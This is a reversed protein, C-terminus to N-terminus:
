STFFLFSHISLLHFFFFSVSLVFFYKACGSQKTCRQPKLCYASHLGGSARWLLCVAEFHALPCEKAMHGFHETLVLGDMGWGAREGAAAAAAAAVPGDSNVSITLWHDQLSPCPWSISRLHKLRERQCRVAIACCPTWRSTGVCSYRLLSKM